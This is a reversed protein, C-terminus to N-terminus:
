SGSAARITSEIRQTVRLFGEETPHLENGWEHGQLVGRLDVHYLKPYEQLLAIQMANFADILERVVERRMADHTKRDYGKRTLSPDLWPGPLPGWGGAWGRGDPIAYDYGHMVIPLNALGVKAAKWRVLEIMDRYARGFVEDVLGRLINTNIRPLEGHLEIAKRHYLLVFLEQGAIDNGGGSFLFVAPKHEKILQFAEVMNRGYVMDNLLAGANACDYVRYRREGWRRHRLTALVDYAPFYDFWSDGEAVM